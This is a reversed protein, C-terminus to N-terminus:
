NQQLKRRRLSWALPLAVGAFLALSGPEPVPVVSPTVVFSDVIFTDGVVASTDVPLYQTLGSNLSISVSTFLGTLTLSGENNGTTTNAVGVGMASAGSNSLANLELLPNGLAVPFTVFQFTVASVSQAFTLTLTELATGDGANGIAFNSLNNGFSVIGGANNDVFVFGSAPSAPSALGSQSLTLTRISPGEAAIIPMTTISQGVSSLPINEFDFLDQAQAGTSLLAILSGAAALLLLQKM